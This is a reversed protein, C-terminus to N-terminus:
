GFLVRMDNKKVRMRGAVKQVIFNTTKDINLINGTISVEVPEDKGGTGFEGILLVTRLEGADVAPVFTNCYVPGTQGSALTVTFDGSQVSSVDLEKSFVVPMGDAGAGKNCLIEVGM